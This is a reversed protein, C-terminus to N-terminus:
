SVNLNRLFIFVYIFYFFFLLAGCTRLLIMYYGSQPLDRYLFQINDTRM